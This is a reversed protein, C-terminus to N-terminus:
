SEGQRSDNTRSVISEVIRGSITRRLNSSDPDRSSQLTGSDINNINIVGKKKLLEQQKALQESLEAGLGPIASRVAEPKIGKLRIELRKINVNAM